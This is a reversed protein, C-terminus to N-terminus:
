QFFVLSLLTDKNYLVDMLIFIDVTGHADRWEKVGRGGGGVYGISLVAM